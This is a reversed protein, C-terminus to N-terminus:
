VFNAAANLMTAAVHALLSQSIIASRVSPKHLSVNMSSAHYGLASLVCVRGVKGDKPSSSILMSKKGPEPIALCVKQGKKYADTYRYKGSDTDVLEQLKLVATEIMKKQKAEPGKKESDSSPGPVHLTLQKDRCKISGSQFVASAEKALQESMKAGTAGEMCYLTVYTSAEFSSFSSWSIEHSGSIWKSSKLQDPPRSSALCVVIKAARKGAYKECSALIMAMEEAGKPHKGAVIIRKCHFDREKLLGWSLVAPFNKGYLTRAQSLSQEPNLDMMIVKTENKLGWAKSSLFLPLM